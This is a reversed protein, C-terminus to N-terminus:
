PAKTRNCVKKEMWNRGLLKSVHKIVWAQKGLIVVFVLEPPFTIFSQIPFQRKKWVKIQQWVIVGTKYSNYAKLEDANLSSTGPWWHSSTIPHKSLTALYRPRGSPALSLSSHVQLPPMTPALKKEGGSGKSVTNEMALGLPHIIIHTTSPCHQIQISKWM